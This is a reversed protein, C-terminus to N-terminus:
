TLVFLNVMTQFANCCGFLMDFLNVMTQNLNSTQNLNLKNNLYTDDDNWRWEFMTRVYTWCWEVCISCCEYHKMFEVQNWSL